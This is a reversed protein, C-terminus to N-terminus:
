PHAACLARQIKQIEAYQQFFAQVCQPDFHKGSQERFYTQIEDATWARKYPRESALADFVDAIAVIRAV